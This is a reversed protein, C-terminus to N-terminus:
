RRRSTADTCDLEALLRNLGGAERDPDVLPRRAACQSKLRRYFAADSEARWLLGALAKEDEVPFYGAYDRGLMGINGPIRSAIVPVGAALAESVVNAGGEMRSSIVMLRSRALRRRADGHTLEGLWRYRAERVMWQRAERAMDASM